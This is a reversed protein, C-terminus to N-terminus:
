QLDVRPQATCVVTCRTRRSFCSKAPSGDISDSHEGYVGGHSVRDALSELFVALEGVDHFQASVKGQELTVLM